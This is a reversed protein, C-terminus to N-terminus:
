VILFLIHRIGRVWSNRKLLQGLLLNCLHFRELVRRHVDLHDHRRHKGGETLLFRPRNPLSDQAVRIEQLLQALVIAVVQVWVDVSAKLLVDLQLAVIRLNQLPLGESGTLKGIPDDQEHQPLLRWGLLRLRFDERGLQFHLVWRRGLLFLFHGDFCLLFLRM